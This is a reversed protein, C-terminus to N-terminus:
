QITYMAYKAPTLEKLQHTIEDNTQLSDVVFCWETRNMKTIGRFLGKVRDYAGVDCFKRLLIQMPESLIEYHCELEETLCEINPEIRNLGELISKLGLLTHGFSVGVNRWLTSNVLDRQMRSLQFQQSFFQLLVNALLLNGEGNEFQIPNIKHPMTSSGVEGAINVQRFYGYSIYMWFDRALDIFIGNIRRMCDFIESWTEFHEVQTTPYSRLFGWRKVFEEAFQNWDIEPHALRHANMGGTAGGFKVTLQICKLKTLQKSLRSNFVNVQRGVTTPTAPQGHTRSMMPICEWISCLSSMKEELDDLVDTLCMMGNKMQINMAISNIDHSTIGFHIYEISEKVVGANTLTDRVYQEVAKVDHRLTEEIQKIKLADSTGFNKTSNTCLLELENVDKIDNKLIMKMLELWYYIEVEYRYRILASESFCERLEYVKSVYRGDLPSLATLPATSNVIIDLLENLGNLEDQDIEPSIEEQLVENQQSADQVHLDDNVDNVDNINTKNM